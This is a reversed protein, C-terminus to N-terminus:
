GSKAKDQGKEKPKQEGKGQETAKEDKKQEKAKGREKKETEAQKKAEPGPKQSGPLLKWSDPGTCPQMVVGKAQDSYGLCTGKAVYQWKYVAEADLKQRVANRLDTLQTSMGLLKEEIVSIHEQLCVLRKELDAIKDCFELARAAGSLGANLSIAIVIAALVRMAQQGGPPKHRNLQLMALAKAGRL